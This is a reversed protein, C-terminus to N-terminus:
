KVGHNITTLAQHALYLSLKSPTALAESGYYASCDFDKLTTERNKCSPAQLILEEKTFRASYVPREVEAFAPLSVILLTLLSYNKIKM